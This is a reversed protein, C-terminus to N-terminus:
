IYTLLVCILGAIGGLSVFIVASTKNPLEDQTPPIGGSSSLIGHLFGYLVWLSYISGQASRVILDGAFLGAIVFVAFFVGFLLSYDIDQLFTYLVVAVVSAYILGSIGGM